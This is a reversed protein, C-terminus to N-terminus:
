DGIQGLFGDCVENCVANQRKYIMSNILSKPPVIDGQM